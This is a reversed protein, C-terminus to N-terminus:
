IDCKIFDVKSLKYMNTITSLSYSSVKILNGRKRGVISSASSGMNGESSFELGLNNKWVAGELLNIKSKIHREYNRFNIKIAEINRENAEVAIVTGTLGTKQAFIILTLDSYAGLDLVVMGESINAFESYQSTTLRPEALSPFFIPFLDFGVVEHYRPTSYDM